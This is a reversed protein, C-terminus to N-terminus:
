RREERHEPMCVRLAEHNPAGEVCRIRQQVAELQEHLHRIMEAKHEHFREEGRGHREGFAPAGGHYPEPPATQGWSVSPAALALVMVTWLLYKKM